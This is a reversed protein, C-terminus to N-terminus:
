AAFDALQLATGVPIGHSQQLGGTRPQSSASFLPLRLAAEQGITQSGEFALPEIPAVKGGCWSHTSTSGFTHLTEYLDPGQPSHVQTTLALRILEQCYVSTTQSDAFPQAGQQM